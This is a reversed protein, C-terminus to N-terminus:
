PRSSRARPEHRHRYRAGDRCLRWRAPRAGGVEVIGGAPTFKIANGVLNILIQRIMREVAMLRVETPRCSATCACASNRAWAAAAHRALAELAQRLPFEEASDLSMKGAEIKSLDLIDNIIGLLYRGAPM